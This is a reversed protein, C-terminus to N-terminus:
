RPSHYRQGTSRALFGSWFTACNEIARAHAYLKDFDWSLLKELSQRALDRNRFSLRIDLGVRMRLHLARWNSCLM